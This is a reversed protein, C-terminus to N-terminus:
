VGRLLNRLYILRIGYNFSQTGQVGAYNVGVLEGRMNVVPSGSSGPLAPISYMIRSGTRQSVTGQNFQSKLGERTVGLAPGMNFGNMYLVSNKDTFLKKEVREVATYTELPDTDAVEFVHAGEPTRKDKLQLLALDHDEDDAIVVCGTFDTDDTVHRDNFAVSVTAHFKLEAMDSTLEGFGRYLNSLLEKREDITNLALQEESCDYGGFLKETYLDFVQSRAASLQDYLDSFYSQVERRANGWHSLVDQRALTQGIVHHNTALVGDASVFFGTGYETVTKVSDKDIELNDLGGDAALGTFYFRRDQGFDLEYYYETKVLVVGTDTEAQIESMPRNGCSCCLAAAIAAVIALTVNRM